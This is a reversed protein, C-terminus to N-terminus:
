EESKVVQRNIPWGTLSAIKEALGVGKGFRMVKRRKGKIEDMREKERISQKIKTGAWEVAEMLKM